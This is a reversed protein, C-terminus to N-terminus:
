FFDWIKGKLAEYEWITFYSPVFTWIRSGTFSTDYGFWSVIVGFPWTSKPQLDATQKSRHDLLGCVSWLHSELFGLNWRLGSAEVVPTGSNVSPGSNTDWPNWLEHLSQPKSEFLGSNVVTSSDQSKDGLTCLTWCIVPTKNGPISMTRSDGLWGWSVGVVSNTILKILRWWQVECSM